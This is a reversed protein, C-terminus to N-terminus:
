GNGSYIKRTIFFTVASALVFVLVFAPWIALVLEWGLAITMWNGDASHISLAYQSIISDSYVLFLIILGFYILYCM